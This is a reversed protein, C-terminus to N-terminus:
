QMLALTNRVIDEKDCKYYKILSNQSGYKEPFVDPLAIRKFLIKKGLKEAIIEAVSSGLGGILTHEEITLAVKVQNLYKLITEEDLPKVTHCHIIGAKIGKTALEDSAKIARELMIGTTILVVDGPERYVIAKGIEFGNEPKSVVPDGGKGVRFYIPGQHNVSARTAREMEEADCPAIITMNPIAKMIAIDEIALHTPGLPAYVLGGGNAILRVNANTLGVDVVNQEYCRRTLFTAITNTYVIKGSMALGASMGVVHGESIGEMFFREPMENKFEKLTEYGLDSGIFVINKHEKALKYVTDLIRKRM